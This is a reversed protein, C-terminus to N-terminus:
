LVYIVILGLIIGITLIIGSFKDKFLDNSQPILESFVVYIMAGAAFCLSLAGAIPSIGTFLVGCVAGIVTPFGSLFSYLVGRFKKSNQIYPLSVAMGEPINHLGILFSLASFTETESGSGLALGEPINHLAIALAVLFLTRGGENKGSFFTELFFIATAGIIVAICVPLVNIENLSHPILEFCVIALMIGATISLLLSQVRKGRGLFLALIGGLGTGGVGAVTSVILAELM